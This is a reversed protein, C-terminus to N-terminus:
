PQSVTTAIPLNKILLEHESLETQLLKSSTLEALVPDLM